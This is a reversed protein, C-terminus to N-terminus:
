MVASRICHAFALVSVYAVSQMVIVYVIIVIVRSIILEEVRLNYIDASSYRSLVLSSWLCLYTM